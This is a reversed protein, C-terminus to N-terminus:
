AVLDLIAGTQPMAPKYPLAEATATVTKIQSQYQKILTDIQEGSLDTPSQVKPAINKQKMTVLADILSNLIMVKDVSIGRQGDAVPYGSVYQFQSYGYASRSVPVFTKGGASVSNIMSYSMTRLPGVNAYM